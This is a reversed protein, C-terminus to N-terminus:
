WLPSLEKSTWETWCESGGDIGDGLEDGVSGGDRDEDSVLVEGLWAVVKGERVHGDNKEEM